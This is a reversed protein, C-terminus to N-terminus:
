AATRAAPEAPSAVLDSVTHRDMTDLFSALADSIVGRLRCSASLNCAELDGFCEVIAFDPETTRLVEGLRITEPPRALLLGGSRGRVAKMFGTRTLHNAVKTLHTRSIDYATAAEEITILRDPHQAAYLLLRLSFDSFSTLRM